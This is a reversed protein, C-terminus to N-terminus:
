INKTTILSKGSKANKPGCVRRKSQLTLAEALMTLTNGCLRDNTLRGLTPSIRLWLDIHITTISCMNKDVDLTSSYVSLNPFCTEDYKGTAEVERRKTLSLMRPPPYEFSVAMKPSLFGMTLPGLHSTGRSSTSLFITLM